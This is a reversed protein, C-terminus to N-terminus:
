EAKMKTASSEADRDGRVTDRVFIGGASHQHRDRAGRRELTRKRRPTSSCRGTLPWPGPGPAGRRYSSCRRCSSGTQRGCCSRAQRASCCCRTGAPRLESPSPSAAGVSGAARWDRQFYPQLGAGRPCFRARPRRTNTALTSRELRGDKIVLGDCRLSRARGGDPGVSGPSSDAFPSHDLPM